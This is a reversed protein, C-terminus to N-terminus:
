SKVKVYLNKKLRLTNLNLESKGLNKVQKLIILITVDNHHISTQLTAITRPGSVQRADARSIVAWLTGQDKRDSAQIVPNEHIISGYQATAFDFTQGYPLGM